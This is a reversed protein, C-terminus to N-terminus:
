SPLITSPHCIAVYRDYAMLGMLFCEAGALTLYLFHQSTCAAFSSARQGMMQDVLVEPVITLHAPPGLAHAPKSGWM